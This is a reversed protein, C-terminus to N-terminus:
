NEEEFFLQYYNMGRGEDYGKEIFDRKGHIYVHFNKDLKLVSRLYKKTGKFAPRSIDFTAESKLNNDSEYQDKYHKFSDILEPTEMVEENFEESSFKENNNFYEVSRNLIDIRDSKSFNDEESFAEEVFGKCMKLTNVTHYFNDERAKVSLFDRKWFLAEEGRSINDILCAKYGLEKETNFILCGKDLKQVNIGEEHSIIFSEDKPQIKIFSDKKEIKFLGIADCQEEDVICDTFYVVCFEGANIKPHNSNEYLHRAINYSEDTTCEPDDFIKEVSIKVIESSEGEDTFNYFVETKFSSLFYKTILDRTTEEKIEIETKSPQIGEDNNKNGIFHVAIKDLYTDTYDIM